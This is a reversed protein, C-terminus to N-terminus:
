VASFVEELIGAVADTLGEEVPRPDWGLERRAKTDDGLYTAGAAVRLRQAPGRVTPLGLGIGALGWALPRVLRWPVPLPGRKRGVVQGIIALARRVTAHPGGVIYTEGPRGAAMASLHVDAVDLVHGWSYTNRTPAVPVRGRVYREFRRTMLSKDGPGYVMGPELVVLPLGRRILPLAVEHYARAKTKDYLSIFRRPHLHSEDVVKGRTDSHVALNSTFVGKDIRLEWMLELVNRTGEINVLRAIKRHEWGIARWEATHFVGDARRMARRMSEKRTLTGVHPRVGYPALARAQDRDRVLATVTHGTELLRSTVFGGLFGTAGTVFFHM